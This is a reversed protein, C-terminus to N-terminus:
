HFFLPFFSILSKGMENKKQEKYEIQLCRERACFLRLIFCLKITITATICRAITVGCFTCMSPVWMWVIENLTTYWNQSSEILSFFFWCLFLWQLKILTAETM